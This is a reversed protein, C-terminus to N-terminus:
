NSIGKDTINVDKIQQIIKKVEVVLESRIMKTYGKVKHRQCTYKLQTMTWEEPAPINITVVDKPYEKKEVYDFEERSQPSM